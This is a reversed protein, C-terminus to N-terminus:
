AWLCAIQSCLAAAGFGIHPRSSFSYVLVVSHIAGLRAVALMAIVAEPIMPMYIIVRDGKAVGMSAIMGATRAVIDTLESYTYRSKTNTVPSDYILAPQDGRGTKVHHDLAMYATNMEGDAFWYGLGDDDLTLIKEPFKFWELAEAQKRWFGAPDKMSHEYETRYSM